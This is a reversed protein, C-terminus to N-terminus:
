PGKPPCWTPPALIGELLKVPPELKPLKSGDTGFRGLQFASRFGGGKGKLGSCTRGQSATQAEWGQRRPHRAVAEFCRIRAVQLFGGGFSFDHDKRGMFFVARTTVFM